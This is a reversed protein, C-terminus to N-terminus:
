LISVTGSVENATAVFPSSRAGMPESAPTTLPEDCSTRHGSPDGSAFTAAFMWTLAAVCIRSRSTM